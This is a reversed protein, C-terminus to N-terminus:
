EKEVRKKWPIFDSNNENTNTKYVFFLSFLIKPMWFPTKRGALKLYCALTKNVHSSNFLMLLM